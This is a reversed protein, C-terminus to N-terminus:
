GPPWSTAPSNGPLSPPPCRVPASNRPEDRTRLSIKAMPKSRDPLNGSRDHTAEIRLIELESQRRIMRKRHLLEPHRLVHKQFATHQSRLFDDFDARHCRVKKFARM